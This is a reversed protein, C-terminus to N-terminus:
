QSSFDDKVVLAKKDAAGLVKSDGGANASFTNSGLAPAAAQNQVLVGADASGTVTNGEITTGEAGDLVVGFRGNGGIQNDAITALAGSFVGIGDGIPAEDLGVFVDEAVTGSIAQNGQILAKAGSTLGIGLYRNELIECGQISLGAAAGSGSQAWLGGGFAAGFGNASITTSAVGGEAGGSFLLGLRANDAFTSGIVTAKAAGFFMGGDDKLRTVVLGDGINADGTAVTGRVTCDEVLVDSGYVGIGAEDNGDLVTGTIKVESAAEQLRVGGRGHNGSIESFEIEAHAGSVLVGALASGTVASKCVIISGDDTALVGYGYDGNEDPQTGEVRLGHLFVEAGNRAWVGAGPANVIALGQLVVSPANDVVQVAFAEPAELVVPADAPEVDDGAGIISIMEDIVLNEPYTGPAVLIADGPSAADIAQQMSPYPHEPSGDAGSAPCAASVHVLDVASQPAPPYADTVCSSSGDCGATAGCLGVGMALSLGLVTRDVRYM